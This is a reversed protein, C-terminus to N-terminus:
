VCQVLRHWSGAIHFVGMCEASIQGRLQNERMHGLAPNPAPHFRARRGCEGGGFVRLDPKPHHASRDDVGSVQEDAPGGGM